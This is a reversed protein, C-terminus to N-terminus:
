PERPPLTNYLRGRGVSSHIMRERNNKTFIISVDTRHDRHEDFFIYTNNELLFSSYIVSEEATYSDWDIVLTDKSAELESEPVEIVEQIAKSRL